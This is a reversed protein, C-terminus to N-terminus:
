KAFGASRIKTAKRHTYKSSVKTGDLQLAFEERGNSIECHPDLLSHSV